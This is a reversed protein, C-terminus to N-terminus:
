DIIAGHSSLTSQLKSVDIESPTTSSDIAMSAAQGAAQGMAMAAPMCRLGGAAQSQCSITKGAVILNDCGVPLMARYPIYYKKAVEIKFNGTISADRPHVDMGFGYVAIRDDFKTGNSIDAVTVQYKGNIHRSERVGLVSAVQLIEAKEFGPTEERLVKLADLVQGRAKIHAYTMSKSNTADVDFVRFHNVSYRKDVPTKYAKVPRPPRQGYNEYAAEDVGGVEFMLTAPQPVRSEEEGKYTDVGAAAAVDANGSCDIVIDASVSILGELACLIISKIKGNECICDAFRTYLLIEAGAEKVMDDLVIQLYFPTFPTVHRHYREIFSTHISPSDTKEPEIVASFNKLREVIERFIGGVTLEDGDRDYVTMFPSVLSTTAMGGLMGYAEVLLTKKGSRASEIAACVGSPGGGIVIVDYHNYFPIKKEYGIHSM